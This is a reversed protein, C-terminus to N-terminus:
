AINLQEALAVPRSSRAAYILEQWIWLTSVCLKAKNREQSIRGRLVLGIEGHVGAGDM